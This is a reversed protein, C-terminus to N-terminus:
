PEQTFSLEACFGRGDARPGLALGAGHLQAIRSVISLGLGVGMGDSGPVRYFRDCLSGFEARSLPECDNCIRLHQPSSGELEVNVISGDSAYRFANILLNRMLIALAETNGSIRVEGGEKVVVQINRSSALHATERLVGSLLSRLAVTELQVPADPDVRALTLLQEVSHNAREVRQAIRGLMTVGPEQKMQRQCLQVEAKIAALPTLLEHAANATFRQEGELTTALRQLLENLSNVVGVVEVPVSETDVPDLQGAKRQSIQDALNRLPMLGRSVGLYLVLLTLPLVLLLPLLSRWLSLLMSERAAGLEIGVLIWLGNPEDFRSLTRWHGEEHRLERDSFGAKGPKEFRPSNAIIAILKDGEWVNIAPALGERVPGEIVIPELHTQDYDHGTWSEYLPLDEVIQKAFVGTIYTVLDSYQELQRDVQAQQDRSAYLYTVVASAVWAFLTFGLLTWILRKKLSAMM